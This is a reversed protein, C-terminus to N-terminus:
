VCAYETVKITFQVGFYNNAKYQDRDGNANMCWINNYNTGLDRTYYITDKGNSNLYDKVLDSFEIKGSGAVAEIEEYSSVFMRATYSQSAGNLSTSGFTPMSQTWNALYTNTIRNFMMNSSVSFAQYGGGANIESLSYRGVYVIKAMIALTSTKTGFGPTQNSNYDLRWRIPEVLYYEDNYKCYEKGGYEKSSLPTIADMYYTRINSLSSWNNNLYNWTTTNTVRSQPMYGNEIYWYGGESDYYAPNNAVFYAHWTTTMTTYTLFNGSSDVFQTGTGSMGSFFGRFTFGNNTPYSLRSLVNTCGEDSYYSDSYWLYITNPSGGVIGTWDLTIEFIPLRWQAYLVLNNKESYIEGVEFSAGSGDEETNWSYIVYGDRTFIDGSFTYVENTSVIDYVVIDTDGYNSHYELLISQTDILVPYNNNTGSIITWVNTFDWLYEADWNSNNLYWDVNKFTTNESETIMHSNTVVSYSSSSANSLTCDGGWYCNTIEVPGCCIAAENGEGVVEGINFCNIISVVNLNNSSSDGVIGACDVYDSYVGGTNYCNAILKTGPGMCNVYGIIGGANAAVNSTFQNSNSYVDGTNYCNTLNLYCTGNTYGNADGYAGVVGGAIAYGTVTGNNVCSDIYLDGEIVRGVGSIYSNVMYSMGLIGGVATYFDDGNYTISGAFSCNLIHSNNAKGVIGGCGEIVENSVTIDGDEVHVNNIISDSICYFLGSRTRSFLNSITYGNGNYSGEFSYVYYSGSGASVETGIPDWYYRSLDIDATQEYYLSCYTSNSSSSNILYALRALQAATAIQYPNTSSGDGGAFSDAYRGSTTWTGSTITPANQTVDNGDPSSEGGRFNDSVSMNSLVVAGGAISCGIFLFSLLCILVKKMNKVKVFERRVKFSIKTM